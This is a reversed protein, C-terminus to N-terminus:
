WSSDNLGNAEGTDDSEKRDTPQEQEQDGNLSSKDPDNLATGPEDVSRCNDGDVSSEM